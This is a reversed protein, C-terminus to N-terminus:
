LSGGTEDGVDPAADHAETSAGLLIGIPGFAATVVNRLQMERSSKSWIVKTLFDFDSEVVSHRVFFEVLPHAVAVSHNLSQLEIQIRLLGKEYADFLFSGAQGLVASATGALGSRASDMASQLQRKKDDIAQTGAVKNKEIESEVNNENEKKANTGRQIGFFGAVATGLSAVTGLLAETQGTILVYGIVGVIIIASIGIIVWLVPNVSDFIRNIGDKAVKTASASITLVSDTVDRAIDNIQQSAQQFAAPLDRQALDRFDAIAEDMVGHSLGEITYGRLDQQGTMLNFWIGSQEILAERLRRWDAVVMKPREVSRSSALAPDEDAGLWTITRQWYEISQKVAQLVNSPLSPDPRVLLDDLTSETSLAAPQDHGSRYYIDDFVTSLAAIQHLVYIVSSDTFTEQWLQSLQQHANEDGETQNEWWVANVSTRWSISALNRGAEYALLAPFKGAGVGTTTFRERLFGDWAQLLRATLVSLTIISDKHGAENELAQEAFDDVDRQAQKYNACAQLTAKTLSEVKAGALSEESETTDTKSAERIEQILRQQQNTILSPVLNDLPDSLLLILSNLARRTVDYLRFNSLFHEKGSGDSELPSIGINAYDLETPYLYSLEQESPPDYLASVNDITPFSAQQLTVIGNFITRMESGRRLGDNTERVILLPDIIESRSDMVKPLKPDDSAAIQVRSRLETLSWGLRFANHIETIAPEALWSQSPKQRSNDGPKSQASATVPSTSDSQSLNEPLGDTM